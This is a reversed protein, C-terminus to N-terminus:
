ACAPPGKRGSKPIVYAGYALAFLALGAGLAGFVSPFLYLQLFGALAAQEPDHPLYIVPVSAGIEYLDQRSTVSGRVRYREGGADFAVIWAVSGRRGPRYDVIVGATREENLLINLNMALLLAPCDMAAAPGLWCLM